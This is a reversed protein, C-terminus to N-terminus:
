NLPLKPGNLLWTRATDAGHPMSSLSGFTTVEWSSNTSTATLLSLLMRIAQSRVALQDQLSQLVLLLPLLEEKLASRLLRCPHLNIVFNPSTALRRLRESPLTSLTMLQDIVMTTLLIKRTLESSNLPQSVELM